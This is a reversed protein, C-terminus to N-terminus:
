YYYRRPSMSDSESLTLVQMYVAAIDPYLTSWNELSLECDRGRSVVRRIITRKINAWSMTCQYRTPALSGLHCRSRGSLHSVPRDFVYSYWDRVRGRSLHQCKFDFNHIQWTYIQVRKHVLCKKRPVNCWKVLLTTHTSAQQPEIMTIGLKIALYFSAFSEVLPISQVNVNTKSPVAIPCIYVKIKFPSISPDSGKTLPLFRDSM